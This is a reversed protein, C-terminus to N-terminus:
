VLCMKAAGAAGVFLELVAQAVAVAVFRVIHVLVGDELRAYLGFLFRDFVLRVFGVLVLRAGVWGAMGARIRRHGCGAVQKRRQM